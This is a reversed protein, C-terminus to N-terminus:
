GLMMRQLHKAFSAVSRRLEVCTERVAKHTAFLPEADDGRRWVQYEHDTFLLFKDGEPSWPELPLSGQMVRVDDPVPVREGTRASVFWLALTRDPPYALASSSSAGPRGFVARVDPSVYLDDPACVHGTKEFMRVVM